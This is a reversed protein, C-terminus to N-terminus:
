REAGPFFNQRKFDGIERRSAPNFNNQQDDFSNGFIKAQAPPEIRIDLQGPGNHGAFTNHFIDAAADGLLHLGSGANAHLHSARLRARGGELRLAAQTTGTVEVDEVDVNSNQLSVGVELRGEGDIRFGTLAAGQVDRATVAHAADDGPRIVAERPLQSVLSVGAKLRVPGRYDGPAVVVTEGARARELTEALARADSVFHTKTQGGQQQPADQPTEVLARTRRSLYWVALLLAAVVLGALLGYVLFAGRGALGGGQEAHGAPRRGAAAPAADSAQQADYTQDAGRAAHAGDRPAAPAHAHADARLASAPASADDGDEHLGLLQRRTAAAFQEGEVFLVTVNDKGGAENALEILQRVTRSRNGVHQTVARLIQESPVLDSLGDSCLLLAADPEFPAEYLEIFEEDDPTHEASGVDRLVENRRAHRMAEVESLEGADELLGVPSHDRTVKQIRGARIKYLRTDGVHAVTVVGNEVVAATLVCAMGAWEERTEALRFIENNALTVAELLRERVPKDARELRTRLVRVATDAAVEGAAQGGVGDVVVFIGREPDFHLRDENNTRVRGTHSEGACKLTTTTAM